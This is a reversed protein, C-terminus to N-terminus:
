HLHMVSCSFQQNMKRLLKICFCFYFAAM